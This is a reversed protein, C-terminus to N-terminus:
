RWRRPLRQTQTDSGVSCPGIALLPLCYIAIALRMLSHELVPVLVFVIAVVIAIANGWLFGLAAEHLTTEIHPVYFHRDHWMQQAVVFPTPLVRSSALVTRALLEWLALVLVIGAAGAIWGVFHPLARGRAPYAVSM